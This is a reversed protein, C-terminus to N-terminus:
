KLHMIQGCLNGEMICLYVKNGIICWILKVKFMTITLCTIKINQM